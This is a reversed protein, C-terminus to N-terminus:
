RDPNVFRGPTAGTHAGGDVVHIGNVFVHEVGLSLQHPDEFTARDGVTEPDFVVVDALMGRRLLGRDRLSLRDAVASSMKRVADELSLTREERVYRGLVRPYTGYARPHVPGFESAWAPDMGGADHASDTEPHTPCTTSTLPPMQGIARRDAWGGIM